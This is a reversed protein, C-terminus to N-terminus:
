LYFSLYIMSDVVIQHLSVGDQNGDPDEKTVMYVTTSRALKTEDESESKIIAGYYYKDSFNKMVVIANNARGEQCVIAKESGDIIFYGGQDSTCEGM